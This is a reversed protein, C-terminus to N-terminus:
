FDSSPGPSREHWVLPELLHAQPDPRRAPRKVGLASGAVMAVAAAIALWFGQGRELSAHQVLGELSTSGTQRSALEYGIAVLALVGALGITTRPVLEANGTWAAVAGAIAVLAAVVLVIDVREFAQWANIGGSVDFLTTDVVIEYWDLWLSALLLVGGAGALLAGLATMGAAM